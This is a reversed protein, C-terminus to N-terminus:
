PIIDTQINGECLLGYHMCKKFSFGRKRPTSCTVRYNRSWWNVNRCPSLFWPTPVQTFKPYTTDYLTKYESRTEPHYLYFNLGIKPGFVFFSVGDLSFVFGLFPTLQYVENRKQLM